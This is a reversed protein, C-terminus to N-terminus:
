GITDFAVKSSASLSREVLWRASKPEPWPLTKPNVPNPQQSSMLASTLPNCCQTCPLVPAYTSCYQLRLPIRDLYLTGYYYM